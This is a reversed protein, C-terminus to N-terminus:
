GEESANETELMGLVCWFLRIVAVAANTESETENRFGVEYGAIYVVVFVPAEEADPEAASWFFRVCCYEGILFGQERMESAMRTGQWWNRAERDDFARFYGLLEAVVVVEV